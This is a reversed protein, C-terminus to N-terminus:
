NNMLKEIEELEKGMNLMYYISYLGNLWMQQENPKLERVKEYHPM